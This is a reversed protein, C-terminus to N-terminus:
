GDGRVWGPGRLRIVSRTNEPPLAQLLAAITKGLVPHMVTGAIEALPVLVFGREALRAHPVTFEKGDITEDGALLIDIDIPRPGWMTDPRRGLDREIRKVERLLDILRQDTILACASNLFEPQDTVGVPATAYLGAVSKVTGIDALRAVAVRLNLARAGTNSGLGLFVTRGAAGAHDSV